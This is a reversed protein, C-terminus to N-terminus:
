WTLTTVYRRRPDETALRDSKTRNCARHAPQCNDIVDAGGKNIPIIHDVTFSM